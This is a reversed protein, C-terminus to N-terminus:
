TSDDLFLRYRKKFWGMGREVDEKRMIIQLCFFDDEETACEAIITRVPPKVKEMHLHDLLASLEPDEVYLVDVYYPKHACDLQATLVYGVDLIPKTWGPWPKYEEMYDWGSIGKPPSLPRGYEVGWGFEDCWEFEKVQKRSLVYVHNCSEWAENVCEVCIIEGHRTHLPYYILEDGCRQCAGPPFILKKM